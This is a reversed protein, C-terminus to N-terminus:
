NRIKRLYMQGKIKTPYQVHQIHATCPNIEARRRDSLRSVKYLHKAPTMHNQFHTQIPNTNPKNKGDYWTDLPLYGNIDSSTIMFISINLNPKNQMKACLNHGAKQSSLLYRYFSILRLNNFTSKSSNTKSQTGQKVDPLCCEPIPPKQHPEYSTTTMTNQIM